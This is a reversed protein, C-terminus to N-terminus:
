VKWPNEVDEDGDDVKTTVYGLRELYDDLRGEGDPSRLFVEACRNKFEKSEWEGWCRPTGSEMIYESDEVSVKKYRVDRSGRSNIAGSAKLALAIIRRRGLAPGLLPACLAEVEAASRTGGCGIAAKRKQAHRHEEIAASANFVAVAYDYAVFDAEVEVDRGIPIPWEELHQFRGTGRPHWMYLRFCLEAESNAGHDVFQKIKEADSDMPNIIMRLLLATFPTELVFVDRSAGWFRASTWNPNAGAALLGIILEVSRKHEITSLVALLLQSKLAESLRGTAVTTQVLRTTDMDTSSAACFLTEWVKEKFRRPLGSAFCPSLRGSDILNQCRLLLQRQRANVECPDPNGTLEELWSISRVCSAVSQWNGRPFGSQHRAIDFLQCTAMNAKVLRCRLELDSSCNYGLIQRGETTNGLFEYASRHIFKFTKKKSAYPVLSNYRDGDWARLKRYQDPGTAVLELLGACRAQVQKETEECQASLANDPMDLFTGDLIDDAAASSCLLLDFVCLSGMILPPEASNTIVLKFYLAASKRYIEFDDNMRSWMDKYLGALDGHLRETRYRLDELSDGNELGRNLDKIALCLWLFVGEAKRVLFSIVDRMGISEAINVEPPCKLHANAYKRLDAATLDELRLHPYAILRRRILLEPRSSLCIKIWGPRLRFWQEVLEMLRAIGDEPHMEDVGDLFICLPKHCHRVVLEFAAQLEELSWDTDADKSAMSEVASLCTDLLIPQGQLLQYLLSSLMGRISQQMSTGPRWFFHSVIVTDAHWIDLASKTLRHAMVHKILTTKGSGPKGSIWYVTGESKLWDSFCDWVVEPYYGPVSGADLDADTGSAVSGGTSSDGSSARAGRGADSVDRFRDEDGFGDELTQMDESSANGPEAFIWDFTRAFSEDVQSRREDMGEYKHSRLLRERKAESAAVIKLSSIGISVDRSVHGGSRTIGRTAHQRIARETKTVEAKIHVRTQSSERQILSATTRNGDQYRQLFAGLHEEMLEMKPQM